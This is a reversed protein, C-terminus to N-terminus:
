DDTALHAPFGGRAVPGWSDIEIRILCKGQEVMADRYEAWDPHEGAINRYYEVLPEVAQPLDVVEATGYIQVWEDGYDDSLVCVSVRPNRRINLVKARHPYTSIVLRGNDDVGMTNPSMQPTGNRRTTALIARHRPRVFDLLQTRDVITNSAIKRAM